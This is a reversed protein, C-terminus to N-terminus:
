IDPRLYRGFEAIDGPKDTGLEQIIVDVDAPQKIRRRAQRFVGMWAWLSRINEPYEIGLIALPASFGTNHNGKHMRVRYRYALVTAIATKTSTKGVSGAVVILKVDPHRVFYKQVYSELKKQIHTKFM